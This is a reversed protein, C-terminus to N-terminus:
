NVILVIIQIVSKILTGVVYYILYAAIVVPILLLNCLLKQLIVVSLELYYNIM